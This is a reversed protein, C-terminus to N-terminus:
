FFYLDSKLSTNKNRNEGIIKEIEELLYKKLNKKFHESHKTKESPQLNPMSTTTSTAVMSGQGEYLSFSPLYQELPVFQKRRRKGEMKCQKNPNVKLRSPQGAQETKTRTRIKRRYKEDNKGQKQEREIEIM